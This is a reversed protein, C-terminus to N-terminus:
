LLMGQHERNGDANVSACLYCVIYVFMIDDHMGTWSPRNSAESQHRGYAIQCGSVRIFFDVMDIALDHSRERERQARPVATQLFASSTLSATGTIYAASRAWPCSDRADDVATCESLSITILEAGGRDNAAQANSFPKKASRRM